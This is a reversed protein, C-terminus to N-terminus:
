IFIRETAASNSCTSPRVHGLNQYIQSLAFFSAPGPLETRIAVSRRTARDLSRIGTHTLNEAGTWAPGTPDM